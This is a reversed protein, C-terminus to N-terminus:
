KRALKGITRIESRAADQTRLEIAHYLDIIEQGVDAIIAGGGGSGGPAADVAPTRLVSNIEDVLLWAKRYSMGMSRAAASISGTIGIAKLLAIKGPGIRTGPVLDIRLSFRIDAM